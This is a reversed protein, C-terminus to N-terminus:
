YRASEFRGKYKQINKINTQQWKFQSLLYNSLNVTIDFLKYSTCFSYLFTILGYSLIFSFARPLKEPGLYVENLNTEIRLLKFSKWFINQHTQRIQCSESAIQFGSKAYKRNSIKYDRYTIFLEAPNTTIDIKFPEKPTFDAYTLVDSLKLELYGSVRSEIMRSM